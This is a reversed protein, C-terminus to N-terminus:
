RAKVFVNKGTSTNPSNASRVLGGGGTQYGHQVVLTVEVAMEAGDASLSRVEEFTVAQNNIDTILNTILRVGDWRFTGALEGVTPKMGAPLYRVTQTGGNRTTDIWIENATQRITLTVPGIPTGQAAAESRSLDMTWTGSFDPRAQASLGSSALAAVCLGCLLNKM